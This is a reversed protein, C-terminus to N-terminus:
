LEFVVGRNQDHKNKLELLLERNHQLIEMTENSNTADHIEEYTLNKLQNVIALMRKSDELEDYSEDFIHPFTKFGAQKLYKLSNRNGVVVFPRMNVISRGLKECVDVTEWWDFDPYYCIDHTYFTGLVVDFYTQEFATWFEKGRPHVWSVEAVTQKNDLSKPIFKELEPHLRDNLFGQMNVKDSVYSWIADVLLDEMYLYNLFNIRHPREAAILCTFLKPRITDRNNMYFNYSSPNMEANVLPALRCGVTKFPIYRGPVRNRECWTKYLSHSNLNNWYISVKNNDVRAQHCLEHMEKFFSHVPHGREPQYPQRFIGGESEYYIVIDNDNQQTSKLFEFIDERPTRVSLELINEQM